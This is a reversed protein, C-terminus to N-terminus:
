AISRVDIPEAIINLEPAEDPPVSMAASMRLFYTFISTPLASSHTSKTTAALANKTKPTLRTKERQEPKKGFGKDNVANDFAKVGAFIEDDNGM